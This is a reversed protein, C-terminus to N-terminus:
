HMCFCNRTGLKGHCSAEGNRDDGIEKSIALLNSLKERAKDYQGVSVIRLMSRVLVLTIRSCKDIDQGCVFM